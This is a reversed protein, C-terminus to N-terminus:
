SQWKQSYAQFWNEIFTQQNQQPKERFSSKRTNTQFKSIVVNKKTSLHFIRPRDSAWKDIWFKITSGNGLGHHILPLYLSFISSIGKWPGRLTSPRPHRLSWDYFGYGFKSWIISAWLSNQERPFRRLWNGLLAQNKQLICGIGLNGHDKPHALIDWKILHPESDSNGRWLIKKRYPKLKELM